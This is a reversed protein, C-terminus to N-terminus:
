YAMTCCNGHCLVPAGPLITNVCERCTNVYYQEFGDCTGGWAGGNVSKQEAKSLAKGVNLIQKKM